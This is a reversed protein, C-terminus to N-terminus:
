QSPEGAYGRVPGFGVHARIWPTALLALRVLALILTIRAFDKAHYHDLGGLAALVGLIDVAIAGGWAVKSQVIVGLAAAAVVWVYAYIVVVGMNGATLLDPTSTQRWALVGYIVLCLYRLGLHFREKVRL